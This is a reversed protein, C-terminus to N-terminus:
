GISWEVSALKGRGRSRLAAGIVQRLPVESRSWSVEVDM